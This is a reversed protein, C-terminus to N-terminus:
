DGERKPVPLSEGTLMSEDVHSAGELVVADVPIREGARVSVVDGVRVKAVPTDRLTGDVGRVRATDPRLAQLARIAQAT